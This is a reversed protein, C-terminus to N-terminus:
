QTPPRIHKLVMNHPDKEIEAANNSYIVNLTYGETINTNDADRTKADGVLKDVICKTASWRIYESRANKAMDVAHSLANFKLSNLHSVLETYPMGEMHESTDLLEIEAKRIDAPAGGKQAAERARTRPTTM